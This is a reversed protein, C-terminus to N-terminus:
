VTGPPLSASSSSGEEQKRVSVEITIYFKGHYPQIEPPKPHEAIGRVKRTHRIFALAVLLLVLAGILVLMKM